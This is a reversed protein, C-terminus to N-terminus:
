ANESLMVEIKQRVTKALADRDKLTMGVIPIPEGIFLQVSGGRINISGPTLVNHTGAIAVPVIPAQVDIALRFAGSLFPQLKGDFSRGGEPFIIVSDGGRVVESAGALSQAASRPHEREIPLHGARRLAWGFVPIAFLSKKALFRARNRLCGMIVPPDMYSAHNCCFVYTKSPDIKDLGNATVRVFSAALIMRAWLRACHFQFNTPAGRKSAAPPAGGGAALSGVIATLGMAITVIIIVPITFLLSRIATLANRLM